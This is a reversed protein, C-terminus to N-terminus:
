CGAADSLAATLAMCASQTNLCAEYLDNEHLKSTKPLMKELRAIHETALKQAAKARALRPVDPMTLLPASKELDAKFKAM